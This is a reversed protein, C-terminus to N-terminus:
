TNQKRKLEILSEFYETLGELEEETLEDFRDLQARIHKIAEPKEDEKESLFYTAITGTVMGLTGIGVLMLVTAVLRGPGTEPSIDGYGVTTTTVISWWLADEWTEIGPELIYIAISGGFVILTTFLLMKYLGNTNLVKIFSRSYRYLYVGLRFVRFFRVIRFSRFLSDLPILAILEFIHSKVFKTKSDAKWLRVSYDTVFIMWIIWDIILMYKFDIWIFSVSIIILCLMMIEYIKNLM